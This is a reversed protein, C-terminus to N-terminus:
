TLSEPNQHERGSGGTAWAELRRAVLWPSSPSFPPGHDSPFSGDVAAGKLGSREFEDLIAKRQEARYRVRGAADRKFLELATAGM